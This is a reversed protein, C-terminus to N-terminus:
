SHGLGNVCAGSSRRVSSTASNVCVGLQYKWNTKIAVTTIRLTQASTKGRKGLHNWRRCHGRERIPGQQQRARDDWWVQRVKAKVRLAPVQAQHDNSACPQIPGLVQAIGNLLTRSSSLEINVFLNHALYIIYLLCVCVRIIERKQVCIYQWPSLSIRETTCKQACINFRPPFVV